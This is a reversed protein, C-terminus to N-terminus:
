QITLGDIRDFFAVLPKLGDIQKSWGAAKKAVLHVHELTVGVRDKHLCADRNWWGRHAKRSLILQLRICSHAIAMAMFQQEILPTTGGVALARLADQQLAPVDPMWEDAFLWALDDVRRRRGAHEWDFVCVRGDPRVLINGPRADWKIFNQPANNDPKLLEGFNYNPVPLGVMNGLRVPSLALDDCWGARTGINPVIDSLGVAAGARQLELLAEASREILVYKDTGKAQELAIPLREGKVYEQVLVDNVNRILKPVLGTPELRRLIEAEMRARSVSKRRSIVVHNGEVDCVVTKRDLGGPASVLTVARGLKISIDELDIKPTQAM